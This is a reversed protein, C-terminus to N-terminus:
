ESDHNEAKDSFRPKTYPIFRPVRKQYATYEPYKGASISESFNSSGRFLLVLLIAGTVSWNLWLGTAAVSFFYFIIWIAQEASYNPHRVMGWLGTDVFGKQYAQPLPKGSQKLRFKLQQFDWQQQDAVAEIVVLAVMMGALIFDVWTIPNGNMGKLAPLTILLVLGMQYVSIFLLNFLIWRWRAKFEPRKQLIPWRYDERGTWFKLSYGGRRSFNYTLRIGWASVVGAMLVLRPEWGSRSAIIWAYVMPMISWIKDVQSHNGSITSVAFCVLSMALCTALLVALTSNQAADLPEDMVFALVPIVVATVLLLLATKWM